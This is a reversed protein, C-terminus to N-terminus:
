SPPPYRRLPARPHLGPLATPVAPVMDEKLLLKIGDAITQAWGHWLGVRMPGLRVQIHAAIKQEWWVLFAPILQFLTLLIVFPVVFAVAEVSWSPLRMGLPGLGRDLVGLLGLIIKYPHEGVLVALGLAPLLLAALAAFSRRYRQRLAEPTQSSTWPGIVNWPGKVM